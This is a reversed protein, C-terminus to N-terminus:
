SFFSPYQWAVWKSLQESNDMWLLLKTGAALISLEDISAVKFLTETKSALRISLNDITNILKIGTQQYEKALEAIENRDNINAAIYRLDQHQEIWNSAQM